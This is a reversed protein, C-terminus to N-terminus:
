YRRRRRGKCKSNPAPTMAPTDPSSPPPMQSPDEAPPMQSPDEAPPMQSPDEAPPTQSPDEASPTQGYDGGPPPQTSDKKSEDPKKNSDKPDSIPLTQVAKSYGFLQAQTADSPNKKGGGGGPPGSLRICNKYSQWVTKKGLRQLALWYFRFMCGGPACSSYDVPQFVSITKFTGDGASKQCNDSHYVLKEDLYIACAGPHVMGRSFIAKGHHPAPVPKANPNTHGCHKGFAPNGDMLTRLDKYNHAAGLKKFLALMEDFSKCKDWDGKWLPAIQAIWESNDGRGTFSCPPVKVYGHADVYDITKAVFMVMALISTLSMMTTKYRQHIYKLLSSNSAAIELSLKDCWRGPLALNDTM